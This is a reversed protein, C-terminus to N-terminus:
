EIFFFTRRTNTIREDSERQRLVQHVEHHLRRLVAVFELGDGLAEVDLDFVERELFEQVPFMQDEKANDPRVRQQNPHMRNPNIKKQQTQICEIEVLSEIAGPQVEVKGTCGRRIFKKTFRTERNNLQSDEEKDDTPDKRSEREGQLEGEQAGSERRDMEGIM